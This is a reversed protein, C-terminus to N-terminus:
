QMLAGEMPYELGPVALLMIVLKCTHTHISTLAKNYYQRQIVCIIGFLDLSLFVHFRFIIQIEKRSSCM